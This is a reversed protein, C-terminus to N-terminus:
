HTHTHTHTHTNNLPTAVSDLEDQEQLSSAPQRRNTHTTEIPVGDVFHYLVTGGAGQTNM